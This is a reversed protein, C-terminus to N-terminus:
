AKLGLVADVVVAVPRRSQAEGPPQAGLLVGRRFGDEAGAKANEIVAKALVQDHVCLLEVAAILLLKNNRVLSWTAWGAQRCVRVRECCAASRSTAAGCLVGDIGVQARGIGNLRNGRHFALKGLSRSKGNRVDM